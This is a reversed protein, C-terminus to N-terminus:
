VRSQSSGVFVIGLGKGTPSTTNPIAGLNKTLTISGDDAVRFQILYGTSITVASV